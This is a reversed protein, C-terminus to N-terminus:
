LVHFDIANLPAFKVQDVVFKFNNSTTVTLLDKYHSQSIEKDIEEVACFLAFVLKAFKQSSKGDAESDSFEDLLDFIATKM